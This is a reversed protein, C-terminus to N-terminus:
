GVLELGNSVLQSKLNEQMGKHYAFIYQQKEIFAKLDKNNKSLELLTMHIDSILGFIEEFQNKSVCLKIYSTILDYMEQTSTDGKFISDFDKDNSKSGFESAIKKISKLTDTQWNQDTEGKEIAFNVVTNAIRILDSIPVNLMTPNYDAMIKKYGVGEVSIRDKVKQNLNFFASNRIYLKWNTDTDYYVGETSTYDVTKKMNDNGKVIKCFPILKIDSSANYFNGILLQPVLAVEVMAEYHSRFEKKFEKFEKLDFHKKLFKNYVKEVFAKQSKDSIHHTKEEQELKYEKLNGLSIETFIITLELRKNSFVLNSDVVSNLTEFLKQDVTIIKKDNKTM